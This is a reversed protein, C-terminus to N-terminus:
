HRLQGVVEVPRPIGDDPNRRDLDLGIDVLVARDLNRVSREPIWAARDTSGNDEYSLDGEVITVAYYVGITHLEAGGPIGWDVDHTRSGVGLLRAIKVSYGTEETVERRVATAPDEGHEVKGGPLTWWKDGSNPDVYRALLLSDERRCIGYAGIKFRSEKM